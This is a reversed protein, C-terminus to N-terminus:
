YYDNRSRSSDIFFRETRNETHELCRNLGWAFFLGRARVALTV